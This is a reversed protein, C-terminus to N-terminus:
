LNFYRLPLAVPEMFRTYFCLVDQHKDGSPFPQQQYMIYTRLRTM